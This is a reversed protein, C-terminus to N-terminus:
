SCVLNRALDVLAEPPRVAILAYNYNRDSWYLNHTRVGSPTPDAWVLAGTHSGVEIRVAREGLEQLLFGAFDGIEAPDKEFQVGGAAWFEEPTMTNPIPEDLFYRYLAEGNVQALQLPLGDLQSDPILDDTAGHVQPLQYERLPIPVPSTRRQEASTFDASEPISGSPLSACSASPGASATTATVLLTLTYAVTVIPARRIGRLNPLNM